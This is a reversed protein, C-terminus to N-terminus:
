REAQGVPMADAIPAGNVAYRGFRIKLLERCNRLNGSVLQLRSDGDDSWSIGVEKMRHGLQAALWLYEVDCMYGDVRTLPFIESASKRSFFKFGCQTDRVQNLGIISHMVLAFAKSGIRRYWPQQQTIRSSAMGRSGLVVDYGDELWPLLKTVEEIPTKYDADLFGIVEGNALAVGRRIGHGKGHRGPEATISLNPWTAAIEAAIEPTADDGDSALIVEYEYTQADLFARMALLTRRISQAENYAPVIVSLFPQRPV